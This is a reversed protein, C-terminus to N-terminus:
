PAEAALRFWTDNYRSPEGDRGCEAATRPTASTLPFGRPPAATGAVRALYLAKVLMGELLRCSCGRPVMLAASRWGAPRRRAPRLVRESAGLRPARCAVVVRDGSRSVARGAGPAARGSSGWQGACVDWKPADDRTSREQGHIRLANHAEQQGAAGLLALFVYGHHEFAWTLGSCRPYM